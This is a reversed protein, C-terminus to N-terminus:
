NKGQGTRTATLNSDNQPNFWAQVERVSRNCRAAIDEITMNQQRYKRARNKMQNYANACRSHNGPNIPDPCFKRNPRSPVFYTGCNLCKKFMKDHLMHNYLQFWLAGAMCLTSHNLYFSKSKRSYEASLSVFRLYGNLEILLSRSLSEIIDKPDSYSFSEEKIMPYRREVLNIIDKKSLQEEKWFRQIVEYDKYACQLSDVMGICFQDTEFMGGIKPDVTGWGSLEIAFEGLTGFRNYFKLMEDKNFPDLKYLAPLLNEDDFPNYVRSVTIHEEILESIESKVFALLPKRKLETLCHELFGPIKTVWDAVVYDAPPGGAQVNEIIVYPAQVVVNASYMEVGSDIPTIKNRLDPTREQSLGLINKSM